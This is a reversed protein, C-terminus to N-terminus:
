AGARSLSFSLFLSLSFFLSFSFALFSLASSSAARAPASYNEQIQFLAPVLPGNIGPLVRITTTGRPAARREPSRVVGKYWCWAGPLAFFKLNEAEKEKLLILKATGLRRRHSFSGPGLSQRAVNQQRLRRTVFATQNCLGDPRLLRYM